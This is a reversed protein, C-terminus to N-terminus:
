HVYDYGVKSILLMVVVALVPRVVRSARTRAANAGVYAGALMGAGLCAGELWRVHGTLAYTALSTIGSASNALKALAISTLLPLRAVFLLSLFMFTGGGPGWIGDYFGCAVGSAIIAAWRAASHTREPDAAHAVWLDKQWVVYLIIPCTIALLVPFAAPPVLPAIRAGVAAALGVTVAFASGQRWEVHGHRAYVALAVLAAITGGVKNTGIATVGPGLVLAVSPLAILGGGGAISDVFGATAGALVLFLFSLM